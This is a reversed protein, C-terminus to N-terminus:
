WNMDNPQWEIYPQHITKTIEQLKGTAKLKRLAASIIEDIAKNKKGKPIVISSDWQFYLERRINKIKNKRIFSDVAEQEMIYGDIRGTSLMKIGGSITTNERVTFPFFHTHGMMTAIVYKSLKMRDLKPKATNTYLVFAVETIRESAYTYSLSAEAIHPLKILPVHFDARGSIVNNLSRAFPYLKITIEGEKYVEDIAKILEVFGGKAQGNDALESHIPLIALSAKLDQGHVPSFMISIIILPMLRGINLSEKISNMKAIWVKFSISTIKFLLVSKSYLVKYITILKLEVFYVDSKSKSRPSYQIKGRCWYSTSLKRLIIEIQWFPTFYRNNRIGVKHM